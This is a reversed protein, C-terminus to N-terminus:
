YKCSLVKRCYIFEPDNLAFFAMLLFFFTLKDDNTCLITILLLSSQLAFLLFLFFNKIVEANIKFRPPYKYLFVNKKVILLFRPIRARFWTATPTWSHSYVALTYKGCNPPRGTMKYSFWSSSLLETVETQDFAVVSRWWWHIPKCCENLLASILLYIVKSVNMQIVRELTLSIKVFLGLTVYPFLVAYKSGQAQVKDNSTIKKNQKQIFGLCIVCHRLSFSLFYLFVISNWDTRWDPAEVVEPGTENALQWNLGLM